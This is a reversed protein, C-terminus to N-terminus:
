GQFPEAVAYVNGSIQEILAPPAPHDDPQIVFDGAPGSVGFPTPRPSCGVYWDGDDPYVLLCAGSPENRMLWLSASEYSGIHRATTTDVTSDLADPPLAPLPEPAPTHEQLDVYTASPSCASLTLAAALGVALTCLSRKRTM